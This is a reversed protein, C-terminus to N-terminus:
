ASSINYQIVYVRSFQLSIILQLPTFLKSFFFDWVCLCLLPLFNVFIKDFLHFATLASSRCRHLPRGGTIISYYSRPHKHNPLHSHSNKPNWAKLQLIWVGLFTFLVKKKQNLIIGFNLLIFGMAESEQTLFFSTNIYINM